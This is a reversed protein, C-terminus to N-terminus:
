AQRPSAKEVETRVSASLDDVSILGAQVAEAVLKVM